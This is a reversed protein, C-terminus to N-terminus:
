SRMMRQFRMALDPDSAIRQGWAGALQGYTAM